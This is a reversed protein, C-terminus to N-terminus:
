TFSGQEGQMWTDCWGGQLPLLIQIRSAALGDASTGKFGGQTKCQHRGGIFDEGELLHIGPYRRFAGGSLADPEGASSELMM